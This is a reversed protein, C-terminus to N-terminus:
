EIIEDARLLLAPPMTLGELKAVKLNVVLQVNASQQVPLDGPKGCAIGCRLSQPNCDPFENNRRRSGAPAWVIGHFQVLRTAAERMVCLSKIPKSSGLPPSM